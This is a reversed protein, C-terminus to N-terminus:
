TMAISSLNEPNKNITAIAVPTSSSTIQVISKRTYSTTANQASTSHLCPQSTIHPLLLSLCDSILSIGFLIRDIVCHSVSDPALDVISPSYRIAKRSPQHFSRVSSRHSSRTTLLSRTFCRRSSSNSAILTTTTVTSTHIPSSPPSPIALHRLQSAIQSQQAWFHQLSLSRTRRTPRYPLGTHVTFTHLRVFIRFLRIVTCCLPLCLSDHSRCSLSYAM